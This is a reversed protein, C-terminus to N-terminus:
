GEDGWGDLIRDAEAVSKAYRVDEDKFYGSLCIYLRNKSADIRYEYEGV